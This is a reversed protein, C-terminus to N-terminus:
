RSAGAAAEIRTRVAPLHAPDRLIILISDDGAVTGLVEEWRAADLAAAVPQAGGPLTRVLLLHDVGDAELFLAPLLRGLDPSLEAAAPAGVTYAFGGEPAPAKVVGLERLDRSLTAQAVDIGRERLLEGLMEQSSVRRTRIIELIASQRPLKM